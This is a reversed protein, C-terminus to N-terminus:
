KYTQKLYKSYFTTDNFSLTAAMQDLEAYSWWVKNKSIALSSDIYMDAWSGTEKLYATQLLKSAKEKAFNTMSTEHTIEGVTYLM